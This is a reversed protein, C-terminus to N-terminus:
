LIKEGCCVASVNQVFHRCWAQYPKLYTHSNKEKGDSTDSDIEDTYYMTSILCVAKNKDPVCSVLKCNKQYGFMSSKPEREKAALFCALIEPRDKTMTGVFTLKKEKFLVQSVSLSVFINDPTINRHSMSVPEVNYLVLDKTKNSVTYGAVQVSHDQPSVILM